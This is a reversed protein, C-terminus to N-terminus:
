NVESDTLNMDSPRILPDLITFLANPLRFLGQIINIIAIHLVEIQNRRKIIADSKAYRPHIIINNIFYNHIITLGICINILALTCDIIIGTIWQYDYYSTALQKSNKTIDIEKYIDYRHISKLNFWYQLGGAIECRALPELSSLSSPLSSSLPNISHKLEYEVNYYQIRWYVIEILGYLGSLLIIGISIRISKHHNGDAIIWRLILNSSFSTIRQLLVITEIGLTITILIIALHNGTWICHILPCILNNLALLGTDWSKDLDIIIVLICQIFHLISLILLYISLSSYGYPNIRIISDQRLTKRWQPNAYIIICLICSIIGIPLWLPSIYRDLHNIIPSFKEILVYIRSYRSLIDLHQLNSSQTISSNLIATATTTTTTATTTTTTITSLTTQIV